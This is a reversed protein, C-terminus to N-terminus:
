NCEIYENFSIGQPSDYLKWLLPVDIDWSSIKLRDSIVFQARFIDCM